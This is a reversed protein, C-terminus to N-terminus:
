RELGVSARLILRADTATVSGDGDADGVTGARAPVAFLLLAGLCLAAARLFNRKRM